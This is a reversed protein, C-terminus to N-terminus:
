HPAIKHIHFNIVFAVTEAEVFNGFNGFDARVSVFKFVELGDVHSGVVVVFNEVNTEARRGLVIGANSMDDFM